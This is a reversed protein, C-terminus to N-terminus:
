DAYNTQTAHEQHKSSARVYGAHFLKFKGKATVNLSVSQQQHSLYVNTRNGVKGQAEQLLHLLRVLNGNPDKNPISKKFLPRM